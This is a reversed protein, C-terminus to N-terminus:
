FRELLRKLYNLEDQSRDGEGSRRRIEELLERARRYVDEGQLLNQDDGRAGGSGPRRGLPDRQQSGANGMAQGQGGQQERQAEALAEGLNRIGDRLADMAEAQRDIAGALDDQRLAEEAGRMAREAQRLADRAAQGPETGEGPLNGRQRNLEDRLDGQREALSRSDPPGDEGAGEGGQGEHSQGQGM